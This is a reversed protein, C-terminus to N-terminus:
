AGVRRRRKTSPERPRPPPGSSRNERQARVDPELYALWIRTAPSQRINLMPMGILGSMTISACVAASTAEATTVGASPGIVTEASLWGSINEEWPSGRDACRGRSIRTERHLRRRGSESRGSDDTSIRVEPVGGMLRRDGVEGVVRAQGSDASRQVGGGLPLPRRRQDVEDSAGVHGRCDGSRPARLLAISEDLCALLVVGVLQEGKRGLGDVLRGLSQRRSRRARHEQV